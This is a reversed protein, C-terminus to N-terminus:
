FIEVADRWVTCFCPPEGWYRDFRFGLVDRYYEAAKVVDKVLFIPHSHKLRNSVGTAAAQSV